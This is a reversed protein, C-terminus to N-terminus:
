NRKISKGEYLSCRICIENDDRGSQCLYTTYTSAVFPTIIDPEGGGVKEPCDSPIDNKIADPLIEMLSFEVM